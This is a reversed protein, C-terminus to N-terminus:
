RVDMKELEARVADVFASAGGKKYPWDACNPCRTGVPHNVYCDHIRGDIAARQQAKTLGAIITPIDTM